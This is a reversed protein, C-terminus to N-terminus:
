ALLCVLTKDKWLVVPLLEGVEFPLTYHKSPRSDFGPFLVAESCRHRAAILVRTGPSVRVRVEQPGPSFPISSQIPNVCFRADQQCQAAPNIDM